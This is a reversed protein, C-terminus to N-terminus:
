LSAGLSEKAVDSGSPGWEVVSAIYKEFARSMREAAVAAEAMVVPKAIRSMCWLCAMTARSASGAGAGTGGTCTTGRFRLLLLRQLAELLRLLACGVAVVGGSFAPSLGGTNEDEAVSACVVAVGSGGLSVGVGEGSGGLAVDEFAGGGGGALVVVCSAGAGDGVLEPPPLEPPLPSTKV